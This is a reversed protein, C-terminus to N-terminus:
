RREDRSWAEDRDFRFDRPLRGRLRRVAAFPDIEPTRRGVALSRPAVVHLEVEDGEGIGLATAQDSTLRIALDEGWKGVRM